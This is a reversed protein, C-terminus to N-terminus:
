FSKFLKYLWFTIITSPISKIAYVGLGRYMGRVGDTCIIKKGVTVLKNSSNAIRQNTRITELPYTITTALSKSIFVVVPYPLQTHNQIYEIASMQIGLESNKLLTTSYGAFLGRAGETRVIHHFTTLLNPSTGLIPAKTKVENVLETQRRIKVVYFPNVIASIVCSAGYGSTFTSVGYSQLFEFMPFFGSYFIGRGIINSGLGRYFGHIGQHRYINEFSQRFTFRNLKQAQRQSCVVELPSCVSSAVGAASISRLIKGFLPFTPVGVEQSM